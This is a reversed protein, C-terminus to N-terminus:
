VPMGLHGSTMDGAHPVMQNVAVEVHVGFNDPGRDAFANGLELRLDFGGQLAIRLDPAFRLVATRGSGATTCRIPNSPAVQLLTLAVHVIAFV